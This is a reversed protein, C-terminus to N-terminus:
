HYPSWRSRCTSVCEKGVRREESRAEYRFQNPTQGDHGSKFLKLLFGQHADQGLGTIRQDLLELFQELHFLDLEVHTGLREAGYRAPCELATGTRSPQAGNDLLRQKACHVFKRGLLVDLPYNHIFVLNGSFTRRYQIIGVLYFLANSIGRRTFVFFELVLSSTSPKTM